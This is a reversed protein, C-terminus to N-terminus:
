QQTTKKLWKFDKVIKILNEVMEPNTEPLIGHGLNFIYPHDRFIELYNFVEKKLTKEISISNNDVMLNSDTSLIQSLLNIYTKGHTLSINNFKLDNNNLADILSVPDVGVAKSYFVTDNAKNSVLLNNLSIKGNLSISVDSM